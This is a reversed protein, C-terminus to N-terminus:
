PLAPLRRRRPSLFPPPNTCPAAREAPPESRRSPRHACCARRTRGACWPLFPAPCRAWPAAQVRRRPEGFRRRRASPWAARDRIEAPSFIVLFRIGLVLNWSGFELFWIGLPKHHFSSFILRFIIQFLSGKQEGMSSTLEDFQDWFNHAIM